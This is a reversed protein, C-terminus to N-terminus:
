VSARWGYDGGGAIAAVETRTAEIVAQTARSLPRDRPVALVRPLSFDELPAGSLTGARLDDQVASAPLLGYGIGARIMAKMPGPSQVRVRSKPRFAEARGALRKGLVALWGGGVPLILALEPLIDTTIPRGRLLPDGAVGTLIMPEVCLEQYDIQADRDPASVVALDLSGQRLGALAADNLAERLELQVGPLRTLVKAGLRPYLIDGFSPPAALRVLGTPENNLDSVEAIASTAESLLFRARTLLVSGAETLVVGRPGRDLLPGRCAEELVQVQRSLASQAVRLSAAAASFSGTEAVAVFYRLQRLDVAM